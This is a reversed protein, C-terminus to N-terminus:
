IGALAEYFAAGILSYLIDRRANCYKVGNKKKQKCKRKRGDEQCEWKGGGRGSGRRRRWWRGM